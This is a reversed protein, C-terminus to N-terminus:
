ATARTSDTFKLKNRNMSAVRVLRRLQVRWDCDLEDWATGLKSSWRKRYGPKDEDGTCGRQEAGVGV